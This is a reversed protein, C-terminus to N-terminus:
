PVIQELPDEWQKGTQLLGSRNIIVEIENWLERFQQYERASQKLAEAKSEGAVLQRSNRQMWLYHPHHEMRPHVSNLELKCGNLNIKIRESGVDYLDLGLNSNTFGKSHLLLLTLHNTLGSWDAQPIVVNAVVAKDAIYIAQGNSNIIWSRDTTVAHKLREWMFVAGDTMAPPREVGQARCIVAGFVIM